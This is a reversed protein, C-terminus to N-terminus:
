QHNLDSKEINNKLEKDINRNKGLYYGLQLEHTGNGATRLKGMSLEFAYNMYLNKVLNSGIMFVLQSNTRFQLGAWSQNKYIARTGFEVSIPSNGTIKTVVSPELALDGKNLVKYKFIFFYHRSFISGSTIQNLKVKNKLLQTGSIGIFLRESYLVIGGQADALNQQATNGQFQQYFDDDNQYLTVRSDDLRFNSYGLGIGLGMNLKKSFPLHYAYSGQVAIKSFPGIADNWVKGGIVHKRKATSVSPGEFLKKDEVNFEGLVDDSKKFNVQSNGAFLMTRPGGNYGLWQMRATAELQIVDTMGGAAPNILFPNNIANAFQYEQQALVFSSGFFVGFVLLIHIFKKMKKCKIFSVSQVMTFLGRMTM